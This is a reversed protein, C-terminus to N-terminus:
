QSQQKGDEEGACRLKGDTRVGAGAVAVRDVHGAAVPRTGWASTDDGSPTNGDTFTGGSVPEEGVFRLRGARTEPRPSFRTSASPGASGPRRSRSAAKSATARW